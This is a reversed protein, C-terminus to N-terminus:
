LEAPKRWVSRAVMISIEYLLMLPIGVMIQSIIDPPTIIASVILIVVIMIRRQKAMAKPGVIGYRALFFVFIPLEFFVAVGLCLSAITGIYSGLMVHNAVQGSVFYTGLFNVTLPVILYYSFLLGAIFLLTGALMTVLTARRSKINLVFSLFSWVEFLLYPFAVVVGAVISVYLHTLFQGAMNVNIIKLASADFCLDPINFQKGIKCFMVNTFFDPNKPALLIHDFILSRNMFAVVALLVVVVASRILHRRLRFLYQRYNGRGAALQPKRPHLVGKTKKTSVSEPM